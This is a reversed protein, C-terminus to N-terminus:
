AKRWFALYVERAEQPEFGLGRYMEWAPSNRSDVALTVQSVGARKAESLAHLTLVKGLGHGRKEPVVGLYALDLADWEPIETLMLVGAPEGGDIMLSWLEPRHVGQGRHGAIIEELTRVGTLEPCDQTGEYTRLLIQHFLAQDTRPYTEFRILPSDLGPLDGELPHRLYCLSTIHQFGHRLLPEALAAEEQRLISQGMRAGREQLRRSTYSMLRDEVRHRTEGEIAQPPWILGTAGPLLISVMAGLLNGGERVVAIGQPDLEGQAILNLANVTRTQRDEEPLHQFVLRLAETWEEPRAVDVPSSQPM